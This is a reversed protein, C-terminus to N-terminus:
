TCYYKHEGILPFLRISTGYLLETPAQRTTANVSNNMALEVHMPHDVWDTQRRTAYLQLVEIATNNARETSGDAKSVASM